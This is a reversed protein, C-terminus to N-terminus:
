PKGRPTPEVLDPWANRLAQTTLREGIFTTLLSLFTDFNEALRARGLASSDTTSAAAPNAATPAVTTM